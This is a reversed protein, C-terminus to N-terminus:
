WPEGNVIKKGGETERWDPWTEEMEPQYDELTIGQFGNMTANSSLIKAEHQAEVHYIQWILGGITNRIVLTKPYESKRSIDNYM